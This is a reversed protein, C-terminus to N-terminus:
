SGLYLVSRSYAWIYYLDAILGCIYYLVAKLGSILLNAEPGDNAFCFSELYVLIDNNWLVCINWKNMM